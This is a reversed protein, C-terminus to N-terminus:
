LTYDLKRWLARLRTMRPRNVRLLMITARGTPTLGLLTTHSEDWVFHQDWTQQRPNFLMTIRNSEPDIADISTGKFRNCSPCALCLNDISTPGGAALPIIHELEFTVTTLLEPTHCYACREQDRERIKERLEATTM